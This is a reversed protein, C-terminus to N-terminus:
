HDLVAAWLGRNAQYTLIPPVGKLEFSALEVSAFEITSGDILSITPGLGHLYVALKQAVTRVVDCEAHFELAVITKDAAHDKIQPRNVLLSDFISRRTVIDIYSKPTKNRANIKGATSSSAPPDKPKETDVADSGNDDAGKTSNTSTSAVPKEPANLTENQALAASRDIFQSLGFAGGWGILTALIFAGVTFWNQDENAM